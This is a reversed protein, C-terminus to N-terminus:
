SRSPSGMSSLVQIVNLGENLREFQRAFKNIANM